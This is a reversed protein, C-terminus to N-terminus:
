SGAAAAMRGPKSDTRTRGPASRTCMALISHIGQALDEISNPKPLLDPLGLSRVEENDAAAVYGSVILIPMGPRIQLLERALEVGSMQPMSLDSLVVDFNQPAARFLELAQEPVTFGTMKYGLRELWREMLFVMSDEDDVLLVREGHGRLEEQTLPARADAVAKQTASLSLPLISVRGGESNVATPGAPSKVFSPVLSIDVAGM